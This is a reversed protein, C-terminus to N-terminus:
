PFNIPNHKLKEEQERNYKEMEELTPSRGKKYPKRRKSGLPAGLSPRKQRESDLEMALEKGDETLIYKLHKKGKYSEEGLGRFIDSYVLNNCLKAVTFEYLPVLVSGADYAGLIIKKYFPLDKEITKILMQKLKESM